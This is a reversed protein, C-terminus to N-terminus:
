LMETKYKVIVAYFCKLEQVEIDATDLECEYMFANAEEVATDLDKNTFVALQQTIDGM